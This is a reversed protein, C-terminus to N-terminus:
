RLTTITRCPVGTPGQHAKAQGLRDAQPQPRAHPSRDDLWGWRQGADIFPHTRRPSYGTGDDPCLPGRGDWVVEVTPDVM